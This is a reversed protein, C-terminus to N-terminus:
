FASWNQKNPPEIKHYLEPADKYKDCVLLDNHLLIRNNVTALCITAALVPHPRVGRTDWTELHLMQRQWSKRYCQEPVQKNVIKLLTGKKCRKGEHGSGFPQYENLRLDVGRLESSMGYCLMCRTSISWTRREISSIYYKGAYRQIHTTYKCPQRSMTLICRNATFTSLIWDNAPKSSVSSM